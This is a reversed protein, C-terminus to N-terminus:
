MFPAGPTDPYDLVMHAPPNDATPHVMGKLTVHLNSSTFGSTTAQYGFSSDTLEFLTNTCKVTPQYPNEIMDTIFWRGAYAEMDFRNQVTVEPCKGKILFTPLINGHVSTALGLVFVLLSLMKAGRRRPRIPVSDELISGM